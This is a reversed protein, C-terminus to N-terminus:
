LRNPDHKKVYALVSRGTRSYLKIRDYDLPVNNLYQLVLADSDSEGPLISSFFFGLEEFQSAMDYTLPDGLNLHLTIVDFQRRCLERLRSRVESVVDKGYEQVQLAAFGSPEYLTSKEVLVHNTKLAGRQQSNPELMEPVAGLNRYLKEVFARHRQPVYLTPRPPTRLYQYEVTFTERQTLKEDIQKFSVNSPAYALMIGCNRFGLRYSVRQSFTHSTVARVYLGTLGRHKAQEVLFEALKRLCGQGRFEPKVVAQGMEAISPSDPACFIACHGALDGAETVAVASVIRGSRNLEVMREPFYMHPYFYSYGYAKYAARSVEVADSPEMLRLNFAMRKKSRQKGIVPPKFRELECAEFYDTINKGKLFKVLHTEKGDPGLYRLSVEDMLDKMLAIGSGRDKASGTATGPEMIGKPDFPLGKEKVIVKLGVPVRECSIEFAQRENPEFAHQIVNKVAETVAADIKQQDTEDFGLKKAVSRVYAAAISVFSPDNPISLESYECRTEM